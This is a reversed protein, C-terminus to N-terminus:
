GSVPADIEFTVNSLVLFLNGLVSKAYIKFFGTKEGLYVKEVM